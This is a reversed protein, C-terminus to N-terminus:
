TYGTYGGSNDKDKKNCEKRFRVEEVRRGIFMDPVIVEVISYNKNLGFSDAM